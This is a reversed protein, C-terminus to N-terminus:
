SDRRRKEREEGVEKKAEEEKQERFCVILLAVQFKLVLLVWENSNPCQM